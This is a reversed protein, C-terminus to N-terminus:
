LKKSVQEQALALQVEGEREVQAIEQELHGELMDVLQEEDEFEDIEVGLFQQILHEMMAAVHPNERIYRTLIHM